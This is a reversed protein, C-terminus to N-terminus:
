RCTTRGIGAWGFGTLRGRIVHHAPKNTFRSCWIQIARTAASPAMRPMNFYQTCYSWAEPLRRLQAIGASNIPGCKIPRPSIEYGILVDTNAQGNGASMLSLVLILKKM